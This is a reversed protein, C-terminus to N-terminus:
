NLSEVKDLAVWEPINDESAQLNGSWNKGLFVRYAFDEPGTKMELTSEVYNGPFEQLDVGSIKLGTEEFLERVAAQKETENKAIEVRGAPFGYAGTQHKAKETHKVLLVKNNDLLIVGVSKTRM